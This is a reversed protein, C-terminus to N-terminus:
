KEDFKHYYKKITNDTCIGATDKIMKLPKRFKPKLKSQYFYIVASAITRPKPL